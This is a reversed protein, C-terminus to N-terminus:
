RSGGPRRGRHFRTLLSSDLRARVPQVQIGGLIESAFAYTLIRTAADRDIGRSRLYFVAEEEIQGITAGHACKVDDAYIELEPKTNVLSEESLLLNRNTQRADTKQADKRVLVRGNFVARSEDSLVGKYLQRSQCHPRAHEISTHNDVHQRGSALYLGNLTCDIGEGDMRCGLDNRVLAGGVSISHSSFTSSREQSVHTAGVHFAEPTEEQIKYHDIVANEGAVIETVANTFYVGKGIGAYAEVIRVQSGPEALVLVRPYTVMPREGVATVFVIFIPEEVHMGEPVRLFAGDHLFATNLAAFAQGDQPLHRALHPEVLDAHRGIAEGLGALQVGEPLRDLDTLGSDIRGNVLALRCVGPAGSTLAALDRPVVRDAPRETAPEFPVRAIPSVSTHRWAEQRSTPFGLDAFRAIAEKRIRHVWAGGNPHPELRDFAALYTERQHATKTM